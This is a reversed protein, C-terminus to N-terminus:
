VVYQLECLAISVKAALKNACFISLNGCRTLRGNRRRSVFSNGVIHISCRSLDAREGARSLAGFLAYKNIADGVWPPLCVVSATLGNKEMVDIVNQGIEGAGEREYSLDVM